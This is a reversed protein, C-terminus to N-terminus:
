LSGKKDHIKYIQAYSAGTCSQCVGAAHNVTCSFSVLLTAKRSQDHGFSNIGAMMTWYSSKYVYYKNTM